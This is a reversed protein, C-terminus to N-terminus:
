NLLRDKIHLEKVVENYKEDTKKGFKNTSRMMMTEVPVAAPAEYQERQQRYLQENLQQITLTDQEKVRLYDNKM